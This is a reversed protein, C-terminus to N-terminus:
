EVPVTIVDKAQNGPHVAGSLDHTVHATRFDDLPVDEADPAQTYYTVGYVVQVAAMPRNGDVMTGMTTRVLLSDSAAGGFTPDAHVAREIELAIADLADDLDGDAALSIVAEITLEVTRKLERPATNRSAPDVEEDGAYISIAPLQQQRWPVARTKFVRDEASTKQLLQGLVAQRIIQRHHTTPM